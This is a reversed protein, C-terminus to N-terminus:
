PWWPSRSPALWDTPSPVLLPVVAPVLTREPVALVPDLALAAVALVLAPVPDLAVADPVAALV